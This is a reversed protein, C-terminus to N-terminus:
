TGYNSNFFTASGARAPLRDIQGAELSLGACAPCTSFYRDGFKTRGQVCACRRPTELHDPSVSGKWLHSLNLYAPAVVHGVNICM